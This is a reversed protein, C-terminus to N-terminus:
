EERLAIVPDVRSARRAPVYSALLAVAGLFAAVGVYTSPDTATIGFLQDQLLQTVGAAALAGIGLGASIMWVGRGVVMRVVQRQEAGLAMRIGIERTRQSVVYSMVAYIGVTALILAVAAFAGCLTSTVQQTNLSAAIRSKMTQIDYIPQNPDLSRVAKRIAPVLEGQREATRVAMNISGLPLQRYPFYIEPAPATDLDAHHIDTVVGAVTWWKDSSKFTQGLPNAGPWYKRAMKDNIVAVLPAKATDDDNFGRGALLRIQMTAFYGPSVGCYHIINANAIGSQEKAGPFYVATDDQDSNVPLDSTLGASLVGPLRDLSDLLASYFAVQKELTDYRQPPLTLRVTLVNSANFGPDVSRLKAFSKLLLGAGILLMLAMSIEAVVFASRLRNGGGAEGRGSGQKLM